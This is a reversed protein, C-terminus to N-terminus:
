KMRCVERIREAIFNRIFFSYRDSTFSAPSCFKGTSFLQSRLKIIQNGTLTYETTIDHHLAYIFWKNSVFVKITYQGFPKSGSKLQSEFILM